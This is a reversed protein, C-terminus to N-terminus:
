NKKVEKRLRELEKREEDSLKGNDAMIWLVGIIIIIVLIVILTVPKQLVLLVNGLGSIKSVYKGEVKELSVTGSDNSSNNDGKTIFSTKGNKLTVDVIRHTVVYKDEDRFAIIDNEKLTNPDVNKVIALDGKFIETEMSGSLVIFPKYGFISPIKDPNVKTQIFVSTFIVALFILVALIIYKLTKLLYKM